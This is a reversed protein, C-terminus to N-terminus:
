EGGDLGALTELVLGPTFGKQIFKNALKRWASRAEEAGEPPHIRTEKELLQLLCAQEAQPSYFTDFHAALDARSIGKETLERQVYRRGKPSVQQRYYCWSEMFAVDNLYGLRVLEDLVDATEAQDYGRKTMAAALEGRARPRYSLLNVACEMATAKKKSSMMTRTM